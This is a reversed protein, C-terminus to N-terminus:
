GIEVRVETFGLGADVAREGTGRASLARVTWRGPAAFFRFVGSASSVVEATFDGSRDLLRVYAAPVPEGDHVVRGQIITATAPDVAAPLTQDLADEQALAGCM